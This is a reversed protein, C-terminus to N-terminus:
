GENFTDDKGERGEEDDSDSDTDESSNNSDDELWESGSDDLWDSGSDGNEEAPQTTKVMGCGGRMLTAIDQIFNPGTSSATEDITKKMEAIEAAIRAKAKDRAETEM